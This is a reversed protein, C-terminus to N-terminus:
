RRRHIKDDLLRNAESARNARKALAAPVVKVAELRTGDPLTVLGDEDVNAHNLLTIEFSEPASKGPRRGTFEYSTPLAVGFGEEHPTAHCVVLVISPGISIRAPLRSTRIELSSADSLSQASRLAELADAVSRMSRRGDITRDLTPIEYSAM